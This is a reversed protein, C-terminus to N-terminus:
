TKGEPPKPLPMWHTTEEPERGCCHGSDFSDVIGEDYHVEKRSYFAVFRRGTIDACLVETKDEPMRDKVSIWEEPPAYENCTPCLIVWSSGCSCKM